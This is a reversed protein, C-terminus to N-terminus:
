ANMFLIPRIAKRELATMFILNSLIYLAVKLHYTSCIKSTGKRRNRELENGCGQWHQTERV